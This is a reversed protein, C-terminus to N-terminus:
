RVFPRVPWLLTQSKQFKGIGRFMKLAVTENIQSITNTSNGVVLDCSGMDEISIKSEAYLRTSGICIGKFYM